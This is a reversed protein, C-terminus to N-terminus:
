NQSNRDEATMVLKLGSWKKDVAIIKVDVLRNNLAIGRIVDENMDTTIKGGGKPWSVWIAGGPKIKRKYVMLKDVFDKQETAFIQVLDLRSNASEETGKPLEGVLKAYGRPANVFALDQNPKIGLKEALSKTSIANMNSIV